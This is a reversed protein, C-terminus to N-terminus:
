FNDYIAIINFSNASLDVGDHFFRLVLVQIGSKFSGFLFFAFPFLQNKIKLKRM